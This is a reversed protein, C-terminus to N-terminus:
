CIRPLNEIVPMDIIRKTDYTTLLYVVGKGKGAVKGIISAEKGLPDDRLIGLVDRVVEETCVIVARGECAMYLPDIGLIECFGMVQERVPIEEERVLIEFGEEAVENLVGALGGRTPDRMFKLGKGLPILDQILHNLPACDSEITGDFSLTERKSMVAAGHDGVPGTVIIRDGVEIRKTSLEIGDEIEGIGSTNIFIGDGKGKETVKTDGTVIRVRAEESAVKISRIIKKFDELPFGEELILGLSLYLPRAGMVSLDNVTGFVSLKGIDGGPFFHPKVVYSDTTFALRSSNPPLVASDTLPNLFPNGLEKLLVEKVLERTM